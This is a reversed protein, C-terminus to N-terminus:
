IKDVMHYINFLNNLKFRILSTKHMIILFLKLLFVRILVLRLM